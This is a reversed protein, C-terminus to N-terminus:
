ENVVASHQEESGSLREAATIVIARRSASYPEDNELMALKLNHPLTSGESFMELKVALRMADGDNIHPAWINRQGQLTPPNDINITKRYVLGRFEESWHVDYGAARAAKLLLERNIM